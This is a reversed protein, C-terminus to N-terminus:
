NTKALPAFFQTFRTHDVSVCIRTYQDYKGKENTFCSLSVGFIWHNELTSQDINIVAYIGLPLPDSYLERVLLGHTELWEVNLKIHETAQNKYQQIIENGKVSNLLHQIIEQGVVNVGNTNYLIRKSAEDIFDHNANHIFGTRYGSLGMSKSFSENIIVNELSLLRRYFKDQENVFLYRYPADFIIPIGLSDLKNIVEILISNDTKNDLSNGIDSIIVATHNLTRAANMLSKFDQYVDHQLKNVVSLLEGSGWYFKPMLVKYVNLTNLITFLGNTGGSTIIIHDIDAKNGFYHNNIALRLGLQGVTDPYNQLQITNFDINKVIQNVDIQSISNVDSHLLLLDKNTREQIQKAKRGIEMIALIPAGIPKIEM